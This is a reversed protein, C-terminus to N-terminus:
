STQLVRLAICRIESYPGDHRSFLFGSLSSRSFQRGLYGGLFRCLRSSLHDIYGQNWIFPFRGLKKICLGLKGQQALSNYVSDGENMEGVELTFCDKMDGELDGCLTTNAWHGAGGRPSSWHYTCQPWTGWFCTMCFQTALIEDIKNWM